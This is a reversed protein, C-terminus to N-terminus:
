KCPCPTSIGAAGAGAGVGNSCHMTYIMQRPLGRSIAHYVGGVGRITRSCTIYWKFPCSTSIGAARGGGGGGGGGVFFLVFFVFVFFM